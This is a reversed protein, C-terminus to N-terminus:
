SKNLLDRINVNKIDFFSSDSKFLEKKCNIGKNNKDNDINKNNSQTDSKFIDEEDSNIEEIPCGVKGIKLKIKNLFEDDIDLFNYDKQKNEIIVSSYAINRNIRSAKNDLFYNNEYFVKENNLFYKIARTTPKKLSEKEINDLIIDVQKNNNFIDYDFIDTNMPNEDYDKRKDSIIDKNSKSNINNRKINLHPNVRKIKLFKLYSKQHNNSQDLLSTTKNNQVIEKNKKYENIIRKAKKSKGVEVLDITNKCYKNKLFKDEEM